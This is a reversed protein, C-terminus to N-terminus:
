FPKQARLYLALIAVVVGLLGTLSSVLPTWRTWEEWRERREKRLDSRLKAQESASLRWRGTYRSQEWQGNSSSFEPSPVLYTQAEQRLFQSQEFSIRDEYEQDEEFALFQHEEILKQDTGDKAARKLTKAYGAGAKRQARQLRSIKISHKLRDFM